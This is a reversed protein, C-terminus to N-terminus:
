LEGNGKNGTPISLPEFDWSVVSVFTSLQLAVAVSAEPEQTPSGRVGFGGLTRKEECTM